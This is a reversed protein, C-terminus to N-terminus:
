TQKREDRLEVDYSQVKISMEFATVGSQEEASCLCIEKNKIAVGFLLRIDPLRLNDKIKYDVVNKIILRGDIWESSLLNLREGFLLFRRREYSRRQMPITIEHQSEDVIIGALTVKAANTLLELGKLLDV